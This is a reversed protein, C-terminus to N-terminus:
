RLQFKSIVKKKMKKQTKFDVCFFFTPTKKSPLINLSKDNKIRLKDVKRRGGNGGIKESVVERM